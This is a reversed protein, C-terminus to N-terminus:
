CSTCWSRHSKSRGCAGLSRVSRWFPRVMSATAGWLIEGDLEYFWVRHERWYEFRWASEDALDELRPTLIRAVERPSPHLTPVGELRGVVPVVMLTFEVTHIPPLFGLVEVQAPEIGVEEQAERLATQALTEGPESLGGPFSIEGAHRSLAAARVTLIVAPGPELVIPALVAALRDGTGPEPRPDPDLAAALSATADPHLM